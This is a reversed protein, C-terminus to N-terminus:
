TKVPLTRQRAAFHAVSKTEINIRSINISGIGAAHNARQVM